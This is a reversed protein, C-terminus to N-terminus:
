RGSSYVTSSSVGRRPLALSRRLATLPPRGGPGGLRRSARARDAQGRLRRLRRGARPRPGRRGRLRHRRRGAPAGPRDRPRRRAHAGILEYGTGDPMAIDSVLVDFERAALTALAEALSGAVHVGAGQEGLVTRLLEATDRHDEVLLVRVGHLRAAGDPVAIAAPPEAAGTSVPLRLTFTAGHGLGASEATVHGGHLEALHRAIALGLGLGGHRRTITSDAQRFRDFVHALVEPAIGIGTDAVTVVAEGGERGLGVRVQGGAATFKIANAVLNSVIQGLRLPDGM